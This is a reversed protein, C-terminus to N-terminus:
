RSLAPRSTASASAASFAPKEDIHTGCSGPSKSASVATASM